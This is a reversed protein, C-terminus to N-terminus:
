VIFGLLQTAYIWFLLLHHFDSNPQDALFLPAM